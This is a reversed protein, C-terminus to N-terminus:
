VFGELVQLAVGHRDFPPMIYAGQIRDRFAHLAERAIAVGEAQGRGEEDAQRMRELVYDPIRMGPVNKHIFVANRYSALPVVGLLIPLGLSRVDDLFREAVRPDYVPQTMVADAGADRKMELRRLERDYDLAAPEAGTLKVFKTTEPMPKGAPDLAHNYGTIINLLGISDVDYVATADPYPGMKPPDGTIVVLNRLGLVHAGLLHSQLGLFNRDRCCVHLLPELGTERMVELAMALNGMRLSARPGDAINITTVGADRLAKAAEIRKRLDFGTPPNLEVSTVFQGRALREGFASRGELPTETTGVGPQSKPDTGEIRPGPIRHDDVAMMRAAGAMRRIHDPSTGCCGGIVRVGAKLLRRAFVGFYEPNAVYIARGEIVEPRGANAQALVPVGLPVMPTTVQFLLEPGGGCNAGIVDAGAAILRRGVQEPGLGGQMTADPQFTALAVIPKDTLSRAIRIALELEPLVYFTELCLVDVGADLLCRMQEELAAEVEAGRAGVLEELTMGSPGVSGAVFARGGSVEVALRASASNLEAVKDELGHRALRIRNAGFTNTTLVRAGAQLYEAHIQKVLEPQSTSVAEFCNTLYVGREYLLSGMAGDFLLGGRRALDLFDASMGYTSWRALAM